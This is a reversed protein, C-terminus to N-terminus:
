ISSFISPSSLLSVQHNLRRVNQGGAQGDDQKTHGDAVLFREGSSAVQPTALVAVMECRPAFSVSKNHREVEVELGYASRDRQSTESGSLSRQMEEVSLNSRKAPDLLSKEPEQTDEMELETNAVAELAEALTAAAMSPKMTSVGETPPRFPSSDSPEPLLVPPPPLSALPIQQAQLLQYFQSTRPSPPPLSSMVLQDPLSPLMTVMPQAPAEETLARMGLETVEGDFIDVGVTENVTLNERTTQEPGAENLFQYSLPSNAINSHLFKVSIKCITSPRKLFLKVTKADVVLGEKKELKSWLSTEELTYTSSTIGMPGQVQVQCSVTLTLRKLLFQHFHPCDRIGQVQVELLKPNFEQNSRDFQPSKEPIVLLFSKGSFSPTTLFVSDTLEEVFPMSGPPMSDVSLNLCEAFSLFGVDDIRAQLSRFDALIHEQDYAAQGQVSISSSIRKIEEEFSNCQRLMDLSESKLEGVVKKDEEDLKALIRKMEKLVIEKKRKDRDKKSTEMNTIGLEISKKARSLKDLLVERERVVDANRTIISM